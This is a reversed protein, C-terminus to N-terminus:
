AHQNKLGLGDAHDWMRRAVQSLMRTVLEAALLSELFLDMDVMYERVLLNRLKSAGVFAEASALWGMRDMYSLAVRLSRVQGGLLKIFRAILIEGIYDQLRGIRCVIADIKASLGEREPLHSVWERDIPLRYLTARPYELHTAEWDALDFYGCRM